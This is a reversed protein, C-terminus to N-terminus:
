PKDEHDYMFRESRSAQWASWHGAINAYASMIVVWVLLDKWWLVSPILLLVWVLTATAHFRTLFAPSNLWAAFSRAAGQSAESADNIEERIRDIVQRINM